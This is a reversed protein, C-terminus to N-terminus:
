FVKRLSDATSGKQMGLLVSLSVFVPSLLDHVMLERWKTKEPGVPCSIPFCSSWIMDTWCDSSAKAVAVVQRIVCICSNRRVKPTLKYTLWSGAVWVGEGAWGCAGLCQAIHEEIFQGLLHCSSNAAAWTRCVPPGPWECRHGCGAVNLHAFRRQFMSVGLFVMNSRDFPARESMGQWGACVM